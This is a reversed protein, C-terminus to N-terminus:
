PNCNRGGTGQGSLPRHPGARVADVPEGGQRRALIRDGRLNLAEARLLALHDDRQAGGGRDVEPEDRLEVLLNRHLGLHRRDIGVGGVDAGRDVGAGEGLERQRAVVRGDGEELRTHGGVARPEGDEAGGAELVGVVEVAHVDGAHAGAGLGLHDGLLEQGLHLHLGCRRRGLIPARQAAHDVGDGARAAVGVM